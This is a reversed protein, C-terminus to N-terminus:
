KRSCYVGEAVYRVGAKVLVHAEEILFLRFGLVM